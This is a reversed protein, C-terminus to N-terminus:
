LNFENMKVVRGEKASIEAAQGMAVSYLGDKISVEAPLKNNICNIFGLHEYYTSGHHHGADFIKKDVTINELIPNNQERMGIRLTSSNKGSRNSPVGTEIKGLNGVACFEEQLDTNEAFM